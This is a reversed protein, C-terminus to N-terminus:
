SQSMDPREEQAPNEAAEPIMRTLRLPGVGWVKLLVWAAFLYLSLSAGISLVTAGAGTWRLAEFAAFPVAALLALGAGPLVRILIGGLTTDLLRRVYMLAFPITALTSVLVAAAVGLLGLQRALPFILTFLIVVRLVSVQASFRPRGLALYVGGATAVIGRLSASLVLVPLIPIVAEWGAGLVLVVLPDALFFTVAAVPLVLSSVIEVTLLYGHRVRPIEAQIRSYAPFSVATVVDTVQRGAVESIQFAVQYIGLSFAGLVRGVVLDDGKLALFQIVRNALVWIGFGYLERILPVDISLHPRFDSLVYSATTRATRAGILGLLLAWPSRLVVAAVASIALDAVVGVMHLYFHRDFALDREFRVVGVNELGGILVAAAIARILPTATPERFLEAILPAAVVLVLALVSSRLVQITWASPLLAEIARERQVLAQRFGTDTFADLTSIALLAIGFLGVDDPALLRAIIVTRLLGLGQGSLRLAFAWIGARFVRRTLRREEPVDTRPSAM